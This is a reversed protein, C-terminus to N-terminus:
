SVNRVLFRNQPSQNANRGFCYLMCSHCIFAIIVNRQALSKIKPDSYIAALLM